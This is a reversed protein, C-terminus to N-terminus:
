IVGLLELIVTVAISLVAMVVGAVLILLWQIKRNKKRSFQHKRAYHTHISIAPVILIGMILPPILDRRASIALAFLAFLFLMASVFPLARRIKGPRQKKEHPLELPLGNKLRHKQIATWVLIRCVACLFFLVPVIPLLCDFFFSAFNTRIETTFNLTSFDPARLWLLLGLLLASILLAPILYKLQSRKWTQLKLREDTEIPVPNPLDSVFIHIMHYSGVLQWGGARCYELWEETEPAPIADYMSAKPFLEISYHLKQPEIKEFSLFYNCETLNWGQLAMDELYEKLPGFRAPFFVRKTSKNQNKM